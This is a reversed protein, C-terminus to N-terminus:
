DDPVVEPMVKQEILFALAVAAADSEDDNNFSVGGLLKQVAQAVAEKDAKGSGTVLKKVSVPYIEHWTQGIRWLVWDTVGVVKFVGIESMAARSNIAKERVFFTPIDTKETDPFLESVARLIDDLLEGHTKTATKNDVSRLLIQEILPPGNEQQTVLMRCFGPRRLSLDASVLWFRSPLTLLETTKKKRM